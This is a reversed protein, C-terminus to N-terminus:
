FRPQKNMDYNKRWINEMFIDYIYHYKIMYILIYCHELFM